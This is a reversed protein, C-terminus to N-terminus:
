AEIGSRDDSNGAIRAVCMVSAIQRSTGLTRRGNVSRLRDTAGFAAGSCGPRTTRPRDHAWAFPVITIPMPRASVPMAIIVTSPGRM